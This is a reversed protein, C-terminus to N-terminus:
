ASIETHVLNGDSSHGEVLDLLGGVPGAAVLSREATTSGTLSVVFLSATEYLLVLGLVGGLLVTQYDTEGVLVDGALDDGGLKIAVNNESRGVRVLELAVTELVTKGGPGSGIGGTQQDGTTSQLLEAKVLGVSTVVLVRTLEGDSLGNLIAGAGELDEKVNTQLAGGATGTDKTSELTSRVTTEVDRVGGLDEGAVIDLSFLEVSLNQLFVNNTTVDSLVHFLESVIILLTVLLDKSRVQLIVEGGLGKLVDVRAHVLLDTLVRLTDKGLLVLLSVLSLALFVELLLDGSGLALLLDLSANSSECLLLM